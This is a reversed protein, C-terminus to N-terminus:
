YTITLSDIVTPLIKEVVVAVGAANPHIGDIQNLNPMNVVGELFFPYFPIKYKAALLPYLRDFASTYDEGLNRPAQMGTLLVPIGAQELQKLLADLNAYTQEPPLGRLADNGGLEVLVLDPSSALSWSLRALGGATTDGSVGANIVTVAHGEKRLARELQAPFSADIALGYGSTLSDGLVLLRKERDATNNAFAMQVTGCCLLLFVTLCCRILSM